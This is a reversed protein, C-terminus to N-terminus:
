SIGVMWQMNAHIVFWIGSAGARSRVLASNRGWFVHKTEGSGSEVGKDLWREPDAFVAQIGAATGGRFVAPRLLLHPSYPLQCPDARPADRHLKDRLRPAYLGLSQVPDPELRRRSAHANHLHLAKCPDDVITHLHVLHFINILILAIIGTLWYPGRLCRWM